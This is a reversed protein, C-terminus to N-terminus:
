DRRRTRRWTVLALWFMFVVAALSTEPRELEITARRTFINKPRITAVPQNATEIVFMRGYFRQARLDFTGFTGKVEFVRKFVNTKLASAVTQGNQELSWQGSMVGHKRVEFAEGDATFTGHERLWNM